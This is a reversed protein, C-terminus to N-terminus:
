TIFIRPLEPVRYAPLSILIVNVLGCYIFIFDIWKGISTFYAIPGMHVMQIVDYIVPNILGVGLIITYTALNETEGKLYTETIYVITAAVYVL